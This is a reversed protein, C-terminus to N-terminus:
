TLLFDIRVCKVIYMYVYISLFYMRVDTDAVVGTDGVDVDVGAPTTEM